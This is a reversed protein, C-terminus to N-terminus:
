RGAAGMPAARRRRGNVEMGKSLVAGSEDVILRLARTQYHFTLQFRGADEGVGTACASTIEGARMRAQVTDQDLAFAGALLSADVTFDGAAITVETM